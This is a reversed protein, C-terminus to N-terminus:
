LQLQIWLTATPGYAAPPWHPALEAAVLPKAAATTPATPEIQASNSRGSAMSAGGEPEGDVPRSGLPSPTAM